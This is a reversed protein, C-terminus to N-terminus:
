ECVIRGFQSKLARISRLAAAGPGSLRLTLTKTPCIRSLESVFFLVDSEGDARVVEALTLENEKRMKVYLLDGHFELALTRAPVNMRLLPSSFQVERPLRAFVNEATAMVAVLGSQVPSWVARESEDCGLGCWELLTAAREPAFEDAPVLTTKRGLLEVTRLGAPLEPFSHGDSRLRISMKDNSEPSNTKGTERKM